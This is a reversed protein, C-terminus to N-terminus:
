KQDRTKHQLFCARARRSGRKKRRGVKQFRVYWKFSTLVTFALFFYFFLSFLSRGAASAREALILAGNGASVFCDAETWYSCLIGSQSVGKEPIEMVLLWTTEASLLRMGASRMSRRFTSIVFSPFLLMLKGLPFADYPALSTIFSSKISYFTLGACPPLTDALLASGDVWPHGSPSVIRHPSLVFSYVHITDFVFFSLLSLQKGLYAATEEGGALSCAYRPFRLYAGFYLSFPSM